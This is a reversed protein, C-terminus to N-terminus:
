VTVNLIINNVKEYGNNPLKTETGRMNWILLGSRQLDEVGDFM